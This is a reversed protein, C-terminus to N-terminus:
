RRREFTRSSSVSRGSNTTFSRGVIVQDPTVSVDKKAEYGRGTSTSGGRERGYGDDTRYITSWGSQSNGALGTRARHRSVSGDDHRTISDHRSVRAQDRAEAPMATATLSGGVAIALMKTSIPKFDLM